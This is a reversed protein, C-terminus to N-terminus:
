RSQVALIPAGRCPTHPFPSVTSIVLSSTAHLSYRLARVPLRLFRNLPKKGRRSWRQRGATRNQGRSPQLEDDLWAAVTTSRCSRGLPLCPLVGFSGQM